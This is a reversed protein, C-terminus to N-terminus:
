FYFTVKKDIITDYESTTRNINIFSDTVMLYVPMYASMNGTDRSKSMRRHLDKNGVALAPM